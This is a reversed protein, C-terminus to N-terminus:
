ANGEGGAFGVFGLLARDGPTTLGLAMVWDGKFIGM